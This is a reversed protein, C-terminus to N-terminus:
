KLQISQIYKSNVLIYKGKKGTALIDAVPMDFAINAIAKGKMNLLHLESSNNMVITKGDFKIDDYQTGFTTSFVKKGSTNYVVLKYLDGSDSNDLVLGIYEESFFVRQIENNVHITSDLSPYEKIKYISVVNEGVAVAMTDNIFEVDGVLVDDYNFGGVVRETENKGVESFNYFVVNTKIEEGSVKVFTAVLRKADASVSVDLPYGDGAMTTKISYIKEGNTDYMNIYNAYSDELVAVMLGNSAVEVQLIPMSTDVKGKLGSKGFSYMTNGDVDGVVISNGCKKVNPNQMSYTQNWVVKGGDKYYSIGDNSYRIYGDGFAEYHSSEIDDRNVSNMVSYTSYKYNDIVRSIIFVLLLIAAFAALAVIAVRIRHRKVKDSISEDEDELNEDTVADNANKFSIIKKIPAKKDGNFRSKGSIIDAM